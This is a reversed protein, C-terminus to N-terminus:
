PNVVKVLQTTQFTALISVGVIRPQSKVLQNLDRQTVYDFIIYQLYADNYEMTFISYKFLATIKQLIEFEENRTGLDIKLKRCNNLVDAKETAVFIGAAINQSFDLNHIEGDFYVQFTAMRLLLFNELLAM